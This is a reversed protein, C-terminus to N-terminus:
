SPVLDEWVGSVPADYQDPFLDALRAKLFELSNVEPEYRVTISHHKKCFMGVFENVAHSHVIVDCQMLPEMDEIADTIFPTVEVDRSYVRVVDCL